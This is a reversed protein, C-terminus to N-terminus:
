QGQLDLRGPRDGDDPPIRCWQEVLYGCILLAASAAIVLLGAVLTYSSSVVPRTVLFLLLGIGAGGILAGALISAKALTVVRMAQFPNVERKATGRVAQRIPWGFAVVIAAIGALAIALSLPPVIVAFGRAALALQLLWGAAVGVVLLGVPAAIGTRRM